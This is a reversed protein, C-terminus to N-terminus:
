VGQNGKSSQQYLVNEETGISTGYVVGGVFITSLLLLQQKDGVSCNNLEIDRRSCVVKSSVIIIVAKHQVL